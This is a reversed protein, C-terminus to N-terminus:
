IPPATPAASSARGQLARLVSIVAQVIVFIILLWGGWRLGVSVGPASGSPLDFSKIIVFLAGLSALAAALIPYTAPAPLEPLSDKAYIDAVLAALGLLLLVLGFAALGHWATVSSSEGLFTAGYWPLFSAIFVLVGSGIAVRDDQVLSMFDTGSTSM